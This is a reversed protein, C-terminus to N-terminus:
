RDKSLSRVFLGELIFAVVLLVVAISLVIELHPGVLGGVSFSHTVVTRGVVEVKEEPRRLIEAIPVMSSWFYWAISASLVGFGLFAGMPHIMRRSVFVRWFVLAPLVTMCSALLMRRLGNVPPLSQREIGAFDHYCLKWALNTFGAKLGPANTFGQYGIWLCGILGMTFIVYRTRM